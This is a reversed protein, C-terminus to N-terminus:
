CSLLEALRLPRLREPQLERLHRLLKLASACSCVEVLPPQSKVAVAPMHCVTCHYTAPVAPHLRETATTELLTWAVPLFFPGGPTGLKVGGGPTM